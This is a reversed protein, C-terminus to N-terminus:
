SDVSKRTRLRPKTRVVGALRILTSAGQDELLDVFLGVAVEAEVEDLHGRAQQGVADCSDPLGDPLQSPSQSQLM